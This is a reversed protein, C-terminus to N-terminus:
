RLVATEDVSIDRGYFFFGARAFTLAPAVPLMAFVAVSARM